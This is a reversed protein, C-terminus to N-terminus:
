EASLPVAVAEASAQLARLKDGDLRLVRVTPEHPFRAVYRLGGPDQDRAPRKLGLHVVKWATSTPSAITLEDRQVVEEVGFVPDALVQDGVKLQEATSNEFFFTVRDM